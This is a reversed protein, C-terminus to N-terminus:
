YRWRFLAKICASVRGFAVGNDFESSFEALSSLVGAQKKVPFAVIGFKKHGAALLHQCIAKMAAVDDISVCTFDQLKIDTTVVPLGSTLAAQVIEDNSYTANLIYGDVVASLMRKKFENNVRLPMLAINIGNKECEEAIGRMLAIDHRDSFVYSLNDNFFSGLRVAKVPVYFAGPGQRAM